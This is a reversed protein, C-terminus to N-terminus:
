RVELKGDYVEARLSSNEEIVEKNYADVSEKCQNFKWDVVRQYGLIRCIWDTQRIVLNVMLKRSSMGEDPLWLSIETRSKFVEKEAQAKM